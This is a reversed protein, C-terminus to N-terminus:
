ASVLETTYIHKAPRKWARSTRCPDPTELNDIHGDVIRNLRNMLQPTLAAGIDESRTLSIMEDVKEVVQPSPNKTKLLTQRRFERYFSNKHHQFQNLLWLDLATRFTRRLREKTLSADVCIIRDMLRSSDHVDTTIRKQQHKTASKGKYLPTAGLLVEARAESARGLVIAMETMYQTHINAGFQDSELYRGVEEVYALWGENRRQMLVKREWMDVSQLFGHVVDVFFRSFHVVVGLPWAPSLLLADGVLCLTGDALDTHGKNANASVEAGCGVFPMISTVVAARDLGHADRSFVDVVDKVYLGMLPVSLIRAAWVSARSAKSASLGKHKKSLERLQLLDVKEHRQILKGVGYKLALHEFERTAMEDSLRLFDGEQPLMPAGEAKPHAHLECFSVDVKCHKELWDMFEARERQELKTPEGYDATPPAPKPGPIDNRPPYSKFKFPFGGLDAVMDPKNMYRRAADRVEPKAWSTEERVLLEEPVRTQTGQIPSKEWLQREYEPNNIWKPNKGDCWKYRIVQSWRVGGLAFVETDAFIHINHADLINQTAHVEYLWDGNRLECSVDRALSVYASHHEIGFEQEWSHSGIGALYHRDVAYADPIEHWDSGQPQFGGQSRIEQPSRM